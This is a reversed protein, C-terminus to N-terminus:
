QETDNIEKIGRLIVAFEDVGEYVGSMLRLGSRNIQNIVMDTIMEKSCRGHLIRYVLSVKIEIYENPSM